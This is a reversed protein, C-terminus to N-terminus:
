MRAYEAIRNAVRQGFEPSASYFYKLVTRRLGANVLVLDAALNDILHNKEEASLSMYRQGAQTFNDSRQIPSRVLHGEVYKESGSTVLDDPTWDKQCNVPLKRFDKGLRHRQSDWYINARAQLLKDDSLEAGDLLNAPSFAVKEIQEMYDVPNRNLTLRGVPILPYQQEDWTKTCDLPDFPLYNEDSPDMLQVCLDYQVPRGSAITDFLDRGAIDPNKGALEVAQQRNITEEGALPIWHYKVYRREGQANRWVFTNVGFGRIHRFSKVTGVDSYLWTVFHTAEPATAFFRWFREPDTLNNVPSPTLSTIAQPFRVGDRVFLVPIHNGVFDFVGEDTYFKIALGRVNRSTDPTGKNGAALSFRVMVPVQLGPTQLFCLKTYERMSYMTQFYGFAGFGKVHLPRELIKTHTFIELAEHLTSDQELVPGEPGVTQSHRTHLHRDEAWTLPMDAMHDMADPMVDSDTMRSRSHFSDSYRNPPAEWNSENLNPMRNSSDAFDPAYPANRQQQRGAAADDDYSRKENTKGTSCHSMPPAQKQEKQHPSNHDPSTKKRNERLNKVPIQSELQFWGNEENM